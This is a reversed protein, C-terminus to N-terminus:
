EPNLKAETSKKAARVVIRTRRATAARWKGRRCRSATAWQVWYWAPGTKKSQAAVGVGSAFVPARHAKPGPPMVSFGAVSAIKSKAPDATVAGVSSTDIWIAAKGQM